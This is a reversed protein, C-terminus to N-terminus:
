HKLTCIAVCIYKKVATNEMHGRGTVALEKKRKV